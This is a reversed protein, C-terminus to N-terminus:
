FRVGMSVNIHNASEADAKFEQSRIRRYEIAFLVNSRAHYILNAFAAWNRALSAELYSPAATATNLESAFPNDDGFAMNLEYRPSVTFKMQTWGGITDLAQPVLVELTSADGLTPVVSRGLGGGLGGIASGRYISGTFAMWSSVPVQWDIAALWSRIHTRPLMQTGPPLLQKSSYGATGISLTRGFLPRSWSVRTAFAPQDSQEGSDSKRDNTEALTEGSIPDLIGAQIAIESGNPAPFRREIRVQPLWAWLNGAYALAPTELSALSTPSLPIFFLSDQGAVLSTNAWDLRGTATRLRLIGVTAGNLQDNNGALDLSVSGSSRAGLVSPGFVDFGIQTQRVTGGFNRTSATNFEEGLSKAALTPNEINDTSGANAFMNLLILGSLRVRYRSASEVKTQYQENVKQEVLGLHEEVDQQKQESGTTIPDHVAASVSERPSHDSITVLQAKAEELERRLAANAEQLSVTNEDLKHIAANMQEVQLQLKELASRASGEEPSPSREIENQSLARPSVALVLLLLTMSAGLRVDRIRFM